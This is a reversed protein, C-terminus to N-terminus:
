HKGLRRVSLHTLRQELLMALPRCSTCVLAYGTGAPIDTPWTIQANGDILKFGNALTHDPHRKDSSLGFDCYLWLKSGDIGESGTVPDPHALVLLGLNPTGAPISTTDRRVKTLLNYKGSLGLLCVM